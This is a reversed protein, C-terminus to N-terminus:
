GRRECWVLAGAELLAWGAAVGSVKLRQSRPAIRAFWLADAGDSVVRAATLVRMPRGAPSVALAVAMAADRTGISRTLGAVEPPVAGISDTLGCPKALVAPKLSIGVSYATTLAAVVRVPNM